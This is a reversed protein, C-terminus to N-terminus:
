RGRGGEQVGAGRMLDGLSVGRLRCVAVVRDYSRRGALCEVPRGMALRELMAKAEVGGPEALEPSYFDALRVEVLGAPTQVCLSDGDGVYGVPGSFASGASLWAPMPGRDPIVHCPDALAPSSLLALAFALRIV